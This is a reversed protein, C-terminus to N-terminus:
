CRAVEWREDTFKIRGKVEVMATRVQLLFSITM